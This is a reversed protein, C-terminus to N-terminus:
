HSLSHNAGETSQTQLWLLSQWQHCDTSGCLFFVTHLFHSMFSLAWLLMGQLVRWWVKFVENAVAIHMIFGHGQLFPFGPGGAEEQGWCGCLYSNRVVEQSSQRIGLHLATEVQGNWGGGM